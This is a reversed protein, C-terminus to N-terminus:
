ESRLTLKIRKSALINLKQHCKVIEDYKTKLFVFKDNTKTSQGAKSVKNMHQWLIEIFVEIIHTFFSFYGCVFLYRKEFNCKSIKIKSYITILLHFCSRVVDVM